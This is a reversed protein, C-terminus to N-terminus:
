SGISRPESPVVMDPKPSRLLELRTRRSGWRPHRRHKEAVAVEVQSPVQHPCSQPRHSRDVLGGLQDTLYRDVRRHVTARHVGVQRAVETVDAGALVARVADLRLDVRVVCGSGIEAEVPCLVGM